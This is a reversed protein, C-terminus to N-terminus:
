AYWCNISTYINYVNYAHSHIIIIYGCVEFNLYTRVYSNGLPKFVEKKTSWLRKRKDQVSEFKSISVPGPVSIKPKPSPQVPLSGIIISMLTVANNNTGNGDFLPRLPYLYDEYICLSQTIPNCLCNQDRLVKGHCYYCDLSVLLSHALRHIFEHLQEGWAGVQFYKYSRYCSATLRVYTRIVDVDPHGHFHAVECIKDRNYVIGKRDHPKKADAQHFSERGRITFIFIYSIAPICFNEYNGLLFDLLGLCM